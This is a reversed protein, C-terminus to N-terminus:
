NVTVDKPSIKVKVQTKKGLNKLILGTRIKVKVKLEKKRSLYNEM